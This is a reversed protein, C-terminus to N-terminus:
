DIGNKRNFIYMRIFFLFMGGFGIISFIKDLKNDFVSLESLHIIFCIMGIVYIIKLVLPEDKAFNNETMIKKFKFKEIYNCNENKDFRKM